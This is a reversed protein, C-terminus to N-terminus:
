RKILGRFDSVQLQIESLNDKLLKNEIQLDSLTKKFHNEQMFFGAAKIQLEANEKRLRQNENELEFNSSSLESKLEQIGNEFTKNLEQLDCLMKKNKNKLSDNQYKLMEIEKETSLTQQNIACNSHVAQLTQFESQLLVHKEEFSKFELLADFAKNLEAQLIKYMKGLEDYNERSVYGELLIKQQKEGFTLESESQVSPKSPDIQSSMHHEEECKFTYSSNNDKLSNKAKQDSNVLQRNTKQRSQGEDKKKKPSLKKQDALALGSAM